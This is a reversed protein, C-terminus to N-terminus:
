KAVASALIYNELVIKENRVIIIGDVAYINSDKIKALLRNFHKSDLNVKEAQVIEWEFKYVTTVGAKNNRCSTFLM